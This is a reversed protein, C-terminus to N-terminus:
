LFANAYGSDSYGSMETASREPSSYEPADPSSPTTGDVNSPVPSM